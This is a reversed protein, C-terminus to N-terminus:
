DPLTCTQPLKVNSVMDTTDFTVIFAAIYLHAVLPSSQTSPAAHAIQRQNFAITNYNSAMQFLDGRAVDTISAASVMM